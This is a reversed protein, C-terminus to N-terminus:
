RPDFAPVAVPPPDQLFSLGKMEFKLRQLSLTLSFVFVCAGGFSVICLNLSLGRNWFKAQSAHVLCWFNLFPVQGQQLFIWALRHVQGVRIELINLTQLVRNEDL